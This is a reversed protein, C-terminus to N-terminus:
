KKARGACAASGADTHKSIGERVDGSEIVRDKMVERGLFGGEKKDKADRQAPTPQAM